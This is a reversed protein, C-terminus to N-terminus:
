TRAHTQHQHPFNAIKTSNASPFKKLIRHGIDAAGQHKPCLRQRLTAGKSGHGFWSRRPVMQEKHQHPRENEYAHWIISGVTKFANVGLYTRVGPPKVNGGLSHGWGKLVAM